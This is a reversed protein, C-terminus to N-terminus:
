RTSGVFSRNQLIFIYGLILTIFLGILSAMANIKYDGNGAFYHSITVSSGLFIIGPCIALLLIRVGNFDKGLLFHYFEDPFIFLPIYALLTLLSTYRTLKVTLLASEKQNHMNSIKAYQVLAFSGGLILVSEAITVATSYIGLEAIKNYKAILYVDFRYNLFQFINAMHAIFGLSFALKLTSSMQLKTPGKLENKLHYCTFLWALFYSLYLAYIFFEIHNLKLILFAFSLIFFHAIIQLLGATNSFIIKEKGQLISNNISLM